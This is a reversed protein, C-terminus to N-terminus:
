WMNSKEVVQGNEVSENEVTDNEMIANMNDIITQIKRSKKIKILVKRFIAFILIVSYDSEKLWILHSTIDTWSLDITVVIM